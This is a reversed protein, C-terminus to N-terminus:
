HIETYDLNLQAQRLAAEAQTVAAKAVLYNGRQVDVDELAIAKSPLLALDRRYISENEVATAKRSELEAKAQDLMTIYPRQDIVFLLEGQSVNAGDRFCIRELYGEVRARIEVSESAQTTGTFEHYITVSRREPRDVLVEPPPPAIYTNSPLCGVFNGIWVLSLFTARVLQRKALQKPQDCTM